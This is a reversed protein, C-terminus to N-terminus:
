LDNCQDRERTEMDNILHNRFQDAEQYTKFSNTYVHLRKTQETLTSVYDVFFLGNENPHDVKGVCITKM